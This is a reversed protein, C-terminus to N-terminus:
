EEQFQTHVTVSIGIKELEEKRTKVFGRAGRETTLKDNIIIYEGTEFHKASVLFKNDKKIVCLTTHLNKLKLKSENKETDPSKNLHKNYHDMTYSRRGNIRDAVLIGERDWRQLTAVGVGIMDAFQQPKFRKPKIEDNM